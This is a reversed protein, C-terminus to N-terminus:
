GWFSSFFGGKPAKKKETLDPPQLSSLALDFLVPKCAIAEFEPPFDVILKKDIYSADYKDLNALLGGPAITSGVAVEDKKEVKAQIDMFVRAQMGCRWGRVDRLVKEAKAILSKNPEKCLNHHAIAAEAHEASRELLALAEASSSTESGAAYQQALYFCRIAKFTYIQADIRKAEESEAAVHQEAEQTAQLMNEYFGVIQRANDATDASKVGNAMSSFSSTEEFKQELADALMQTREVTTMLRQFALYDQLLQANKKQQEAKQSAGSTAGSAATTAAATANSAAEDKLAQLAENYIAFLKDFQENKRDLNTMIELQNMEFQADKAKLLAIRLKQSKISISQGQWSIEEISQGQQKRADELVADLETKLRQLEPDEGAAHALVKLLDANADKSGGLNYQCFSIITDIDEARQTYLDQQEKAGVKALQQYITRARVLNEIAEKWRKRDRFVNGQMWANYAQAELKTRQAGVAECLTLLVRSWKASKELRLLSHHRSRPNADQDEKLEM